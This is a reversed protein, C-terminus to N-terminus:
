FKMRFFTTIMGHVTDALVPFLIEKVFSIFCSKQKPSINLLENWPNSNGDSRGLSRKLCLPPEHLIYTNPIVQIETRGERLVFLCLPPEHFIYTTPIVKIETRGERLVNYVCHRSTSSFTTPIVKIETRGERLVNWVCHRSTSSILPPSWKFTRGRRGHEM